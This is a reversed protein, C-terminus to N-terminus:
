ATCGPVSAATAGNLLAFYGKDSGTGMTCAAGTPKWGGKRVVVALPQNLAKLMAPAGAEDVAKYTVGTGFGVTTSLEDSTYSIPTNNPLKDYSGLAGGGAPGSLM